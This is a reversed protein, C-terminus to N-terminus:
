ASPGSSSTVSLASGGLSAVAHRARIQCLASVIVSEVASRGFKTLSGKDLLLKLIQRPRNVRKDALLRNKWCVVSLLPLLVLRAFHRCGHGPKRDKRLCLQPMVQSLILSYVVVVRSITSLCWGSKALMTGGDKGYQCCELTGRGTDSSWSTANTSANEDVRNGSWMGVVGNGCGMRTTESSLKLAVVVPMKPKFSLVVLVPKQPVIGVAVGLQLERLQVVGVKPCQSLGPLRRNLAMLNTRKCCAGPPFAGLLLGVKAM